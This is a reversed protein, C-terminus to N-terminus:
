SSETLLSLIESTRKFQTYNLTVCRRINRITFVNERETIHAAQLSGTPFTSQTQELIRSTV